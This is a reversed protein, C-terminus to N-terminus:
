KQSRPAAVSARTMLTPQFMFEGTPIAPDALRSM